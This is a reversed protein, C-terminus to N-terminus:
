SRPPPTAPFAPEGAMAASISMDAIPTLAPAALAPLVPLVTACAACGHPKALGPGCDHDGCDAHHHHGQEAVGADAHQMMNGMGNPLLLLGLALLLIAAFRLM